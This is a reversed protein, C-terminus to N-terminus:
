ANGNLSYNACAHNHVFLLSVDEPNTRYRGNNRLVECVYYRCLVIDPPKKTASCVFLFHYSSILLLTCSQYFHDTSIILLTRVWKAHRVVMKKRIQLTSGVMSHTYGIRVKLICLCLNAICKSSYYMNTIIYQV